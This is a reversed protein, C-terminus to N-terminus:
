DIKFVGKLKEIEWELFLSFNRLLLKFSCNENKFLCPLLYIGKFLEEGLVYMFAKFRLLCNTKKDSFCRGALFIEFILGVLLSFVFIRSIMALGLTLIFLFPYSLFGYQFPIKEQKNSFLYYLLDATGRIEVLIKKIIGNLNLNHDHFGRVRSSYLFHRGKSLHSLQFAIDEASNKGFNEPFKMKQFVSRKVAGIAVSFPSFSSLSIKRDIDDKGYVVRRRIDRYINGDSKRLSEYYGCIGSIGPYKNFLGYLNLLADTDLYMHDDLFFLIEGKAVKAGINKAKGNGGNKFLSILKVDKFKKVMEITSDTSKDDVCIIEFEKRPFNQKYISCIVKAISEQCNYLPIIISFLM